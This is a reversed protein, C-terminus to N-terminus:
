HPQLHDGRCWAERAVRPIPSCLGRYQKVGAAPTNSGVATGGWTALLHPRGGDKVPIILSFTGSTHGPTRVVDRDHRRAYNEAWRIRRYRPASDPRAPEERRSGLRARGHRSASRVRGASVKSRWPSGRPRPQHGSVEDDRPEPRSARGEVVSDKVAYDFLADIVILGDSTQLAWASHLKTGVFYLNDFVKAPPQNWTERAPVDRAGAGAGRGREPQNGPSCVEAFRNYRAMSSPEPPPVRRLAIRRGHTPRNNRLLPPPSPPWRWRAPWFM